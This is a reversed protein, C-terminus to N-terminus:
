YGRLTSPGPLQTQCGGLDRAGRATPVAARYPCHSLAPSTKQATNPLQTVHVSMAGHPSEASNFIAELLDLRSTSTQLQIYSIKLVHM